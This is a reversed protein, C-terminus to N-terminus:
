HFSLNCGRVGDGFREEERAVILVSLASACFLGAPAPGARPANGEPQASRGRLLAPSCRSERASTARQAGPIGSFRDTQGTLGMILTEYM